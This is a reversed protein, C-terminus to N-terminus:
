CQFTINILLSGHKEALEQREDTVMRLSKSLALNNAIKTTVRKMIPHQHLFQRLILAASRRM